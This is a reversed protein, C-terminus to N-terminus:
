WMAENVRLQCFYASFLAIMQFIVNKIM